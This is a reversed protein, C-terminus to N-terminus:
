SSWDAGLDSASIREEILDLAVVALKRNHSRAYRRLLEFGSEMDLGGREALVGKAQEIVIRNNLAIQLRETVLRAERLAREQLLSITAIGALARSLALDADDLRGPETRFLNLAGIVETRLRMPAAQVSRFGAAVAEGAFRPWRETSELREETVPEGSRYCDLCPGEENQIEFLELLHMQESSSAVARLNGTADALVLGAADVDLLEVCRSALTHLFDVADFDSVLTDALEVFTDGLSSERREENM